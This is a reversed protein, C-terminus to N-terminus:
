WKEAWTAFRDIIISKVYNPM